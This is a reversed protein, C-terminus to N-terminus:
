LVGGGFVAFAAIGARVLDALWTLGAVLVAGAVAAVSIAVAAITRDSM